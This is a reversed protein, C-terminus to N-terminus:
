LEAKKKSARKAKYWLLDIIQRRTTLLDWEVTLTPTRKHLMELHNIDAMLSTIKAEREKKIRAGHKILDGWMVAKHAEWIVGSNCEPTDNTQFYWRAEKRVEEIVSPDQLLSENLKWMAHGPLQIDSLNYKM